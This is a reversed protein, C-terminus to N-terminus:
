AAQVHMTILRKTYLLLLKGSAMLDQCCSSCPLSRLLPTVCTKKQKGGKVPRLATCVGAMTAGFTMLGDCPASCLLAPCPCPLATCRKCSMHLAPCLLAPSAPCTFPLAPCPMAPCLLCVAYLPCPLPLAPCHSRVAHCLMARGCMGAACGTVHFMHQQTQHSHKMSCCGAFCLRCRVTANPSFSHNAMDVGPVTMHISQPGHIFCRSHLVSVAWDFDQRNCGVVELDEELEQLCCNYHCYYYFNYCYLYYSYYSCYIHNYNHNDYCNHDKIIVIIILIIIM